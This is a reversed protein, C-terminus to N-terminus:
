GKQWLGFYFCLIPGSLPFGPIEYYFAFLIEIEIEIEIEIKAKWIRWVRWM